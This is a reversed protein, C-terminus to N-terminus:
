NFIVQHIEIKRPLKDTLCLPQFAARPGPRSYIVLAKNYVGRRIRVQILWWFDRLGVCFIRWSLTNNM